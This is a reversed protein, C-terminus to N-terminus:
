AGKKMEEYTKPVNIQSHVWPFIKYGAYAKMSGALRQVTQEETLGDAIAARM